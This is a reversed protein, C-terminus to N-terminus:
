WSPVLSLVPPSGMYPCPNKELGPALSCDSWLDVNKTSKRTTIKSPNEKKKPDNESM